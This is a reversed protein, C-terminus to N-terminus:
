PENPSTATRDEAAPRPGVPRAATTQGFLMGADYGDSAGGLAPNDWSQDDLAYDEPVHVHYPRSIEPLQRWDARTLQREQLAGWLAQWEYFSLSLPSDARGSARAYQVPFGEFFNRGGKWVFASRLSEVGASGTQTVFAEGSGIWLSDACDFELPYPPVYEGSAGLRVLGGGVAATLHRLEVLLRGPPRESMPRPALYVMRESTALLGNNWTFRLPQVDALRLCAAEGRLV